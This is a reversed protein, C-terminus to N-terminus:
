EAVTERRSVLRLIGGGGIMVIGFTFVFLLTGIGAFTYAVCVGFLLLLSTNGDVREVLKGKRDYCEVWITKCTGSNRNHANCQSDQSDIQAKTGAPCAWRAVLDASVSVPLVAAAVAATTVPLFGGFGIAVSGAVGAAVVFLIAYRKM